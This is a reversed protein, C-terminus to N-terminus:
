CIAAKVVVSIDSSEGECSGAFMGSVPKDIYVVQRRTSRIQPRTHSHALQPVLPEASNPSPTPVRIQEVRHCKRRLTMGPQLSNNHM